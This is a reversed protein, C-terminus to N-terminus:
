GGVRVFPTQYGGQEIMTFGTSTKDGLTNEGEGWPFLGPSGGQFSWVMRGNRIGWTGRMIPPVLAGIQSPPEAVLSGDSKFQVRWTGEARRATWSGLYEAPHELPPEGGGCAVLLPLCLALAARVM